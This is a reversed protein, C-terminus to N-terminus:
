LLEVIKVEYLVFYEDSYLEKYGDDDKIYNDILTGKEVLLHTLNYKDVLEDYTINGDCVDLYDKFIETDNYAKTYM